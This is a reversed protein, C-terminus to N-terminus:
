RRGEITAAPSSGSLRASPSLFWISKPEPPLVAALAQFSMQPDPCPMPAIEATSGTEERTSSSSACYRAAFSSSRPRAPMPQVDDNTLPALVSGTGSWLRDAMADLESFDVGQGLPDHRNLLPKRRGDELLLRRLARRLLGLRMTARVAAGRPDRLRQVTWDAEILGVREIVLETYRRHPGRHLPLGMRLAAREDCPLLLGNERFDAFRRREGLAGFM